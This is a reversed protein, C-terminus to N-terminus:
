AEQVICLENFTFIYFVVLVEWAIMRCNSNKHVTKSILGAEEVQVEVEGKDEM